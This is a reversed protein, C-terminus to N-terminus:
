GNGFVEETASVTESDRHEKEQMRELVKRYDIPFVKVFYPLRAEWNELIAQARESATFQVHRSLLERLAAQDDLSWVSELDVMDLNCRTDFLGSEDYVYAIGGSMGAAFNDGTPGLVVVTGGTMYECGHDGVGEVVARAGSNRVAFREGAMGRLFVEGATAGYLIVNGAIVSEHPVIAANPHPTVV